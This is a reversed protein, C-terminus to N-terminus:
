VHGREEESTENDSLAEKRAKELRETAEEETEEEETEMPDPRTPGKFGKLGQVPNKGGRNGTVKFGSQRRAEETAQRGQVEVLNAKPDDKIQEELAAIQQRKANIFGEATAGDEKSLEEIERRLKAIQNRRNRMRLVWNNDEEYYRELADRDVNPDAM